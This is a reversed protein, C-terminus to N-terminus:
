DVAGSSLEELVGYISDRLTDEIKRMYSIHMLEPAVRGPLANWRACVSAVYTRWYERVSETPILTAEKERRQIELLLRRERDLKAKEQPGDLSGGGGNLYLARLATGSDFLQVHGPGPESKLRSLCAKVRRRDFGTLEALRNVTILM